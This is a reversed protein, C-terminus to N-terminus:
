KVTFTLRRAPGLWQDDEERRVMMADMLGSTDLAPTLSISLPQAMVVWPCEGRRALVECSWGEHWPEIAKMVIARIGEDSGLMRVPLKRAM